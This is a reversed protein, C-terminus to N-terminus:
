ALEAEEESKDYEVPEYDPNKLKMITNYGVMMQNKTSGAFMKEFRHGANKYPEHTLMGTVAQYGGFATGVLQPTVGVFPQWQPDSFMTVLTERQATVTDMKFRYDDIRAELSSKARFTPDPKAPERYVQEAVYVMEDTSLPQSALYLASNQALQRTAMSQGFMDGIAIRVRDNAGETQDVRLIRSAKAIGFMVTNQCVAVISTNYIHIMAKPDVYVHFYEDVDTGIIDAVEKDWKPLKVSLFFGKVGYKGLFGASELLVANGFEDRLDEQVMQFVNSPNVLEYNISKTPRNPNVNMAAWDEPTMSGTYVPKGFVINHGDKSDPAPNRSIMAYPQQISRLKGDPLIQHTYNPDLFTEYNGQPDLLSKVEMPPLGAPYVTGTEHWAPQRTYLSAKSCVKIETGNVTYFVGKRHEPISLNASM